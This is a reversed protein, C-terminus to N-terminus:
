EAQEELKSLVADLNERAGRIRGENEASLVLGANMRSKPAKPAEGDDEAAPADDASPDDAVTSELSPDGNDGIGRPMAANEVTTMTSPVFHREGGEFGDQDELAFIDNPSMGMQFMKWYYEARDKAAGRLLETDFFKFYYGAKVEERTLLSRKMSREFRRHWPRVTHVAHALFMQEASAYTAAKDSYGVMIPMVGYARCVEEIQLKRTEVHQADVGSLDIPKWDAKRDLILPKGSNRAGVHHLDIWAKLRKYQDPVLEGEVSYIGTTQLGNAFRQAHANQTAMALGLAERSLRTIDLGTWSNWSPGRLHWMAAQPFEEVSGDIASVHYVLSYDDKREVRVGAPELPIMEVIRGRVRNLFTYSNGTFVTHLTKTEFFQLPDMWGNPEYDFLEYLPHDFAPARRGTAPDKRMLKCPVTSVGDAIVLGCRLATTVELATKWTVHEGSSSAGGVGLDQWFSESFAVNQPPSKKFLSFLWM